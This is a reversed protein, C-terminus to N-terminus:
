ANAKRRRFLRGIKFLGFGALFGLAAHAAGAFTLPLAPKYIAFADKSLQSDFSLAFEALQEYGGGGTLAAYHAGLYAERTLITEISNARDSFFQSGEARYDAIAQDVTINNAAADQRFGEAVDRIEFYAGGVRQTYQQAFEPFQSLGSAVCVGFVLPITNKFM